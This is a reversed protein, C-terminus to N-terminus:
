LNEEKEIRVLEEGLRKAFLVPVANGIQRYCSGRVGCFEFDDPFTQVAASERVTLRRKGHGCVGEAMEGRLYRLHHNIRTLKGTLQIIM